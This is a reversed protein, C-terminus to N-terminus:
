NKKEGTPPRTGVFASSTPGAVKTVVTAKPPYAQRLLTNVHFVYDSLIAERRQREKEEQSHWGYDNDCPFCLIDSIRPAKDPTWTDIDPIPVAVRKTAPHIVFPAKILHTPTTTVARDLRPGLLTFLLQKEFWPANLRLVVMACLQEWYMVRDPGRSRPDHLSALMQTLDDIFDPPLIKLALGCVDIIVQTTAPHAILVTGDLFREYFVPRLIYEYIYTVYEPHHDPMEYLKPNTCILELRSIVGERQEKTFKVFKSDLVWIHIGRRGSFVPMIFKADFVKRLAYTMCKAAVVMYFWCGVACTSSKGRCNCNRIYGDPHETASRDAMDVDFVLYREVPPQVGTGDYLSAAGRPFAAGIEIRDPGKVAIFRALEDDNEFRQHRSFTGDFVFAVECNRLPIEGRRTVFPVFCSTPFWGETYYSKINCTKDMENARATDASIARRADEEFMERIRAAKEWQSERTAFTLPKETGDPGVGVVAPAISQQQEQEEQEILLLAAYSEEKLRKHYEIRELVITMDKSEKEASAAKAAEERQRKKEEASQGPRLQKKIVDTLKKQQNPAVANIAGAVSEAVLGTFVKKAKRSDNLQEKEEEEGEQKVAVVAAAAAESKKRKFQIGQM